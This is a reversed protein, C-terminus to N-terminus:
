ALRNIYREVVRVGVTYMWHFVKDRSFVYNYSALGPKYHPFDERAILWNIIHKPYGTFESCVDIDFTQPYDERKPLNETLRNRVTSNVNLSRIAERVEIIGELFMIDWMYWLFHIDGHLWASEAISEHEDSDFGLKSIERYLFDATLVQKESNREEFFLDELDEDSMSGDECAILYKSMFFSNRWYEIHKDIIDIAANRTADNMAWAPMIILNIQKSSLLGCGEGLITKAMNEIKDLYYKNVSEDQKQKPYGTKANNTLGNSYVKRKPARKKTMYQNM